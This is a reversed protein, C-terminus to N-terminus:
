ATPLRPQNTTLDRRRTSTHLPVYALRVGCGRDVMVKRVKKMPWWMEHSAQVTRKLTLRVIGAGDSEGGIWAVVDV